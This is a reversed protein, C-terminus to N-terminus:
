ERGVFLYILAISLAVLLVAVYADPLFGLYDGISSIASTAYGLVKVLDNFFDSVVIILWDLGNKIDNLFDM